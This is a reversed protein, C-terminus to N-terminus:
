IQSNLRCELLFTRQQKKSDKEASLSEGMSRAYSLIRFFMSLAIPIRYDEYACVADSFDPDDRLLIQQEEFFDCSYEAAGSDWFQYIKLSFFKM